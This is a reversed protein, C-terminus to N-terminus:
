EPIPLEPSLDAVVLFHSLAPFGQLIDVNDCPIRLDALLMNEGM